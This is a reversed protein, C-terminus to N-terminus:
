LPSLADRFNSIVKDSLVEQGAGSHSTFENKLDIVSSGNQLFKDMELKLQFEHAGGIDTWNIDSFTLTKFNEDKGIHFVVNHDFLANADQITDVRAEVKVFIFGPNWGWYMDNSNQINLVSESPFAAPDNHNISEHVGLNANFSTFNEHAGESEFLLTGREGYDFLGADILQSSGNRANEMYFKISTFQVDYGETTTYTSDLYLNQAGYMPQVSVKLQGEPVPDCPEEEKKKCSILVVAALALLSINRVNVM